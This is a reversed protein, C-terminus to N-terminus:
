AMEGYTTSSLTDYFTFSSTSITEADTYVVIDYNHNASGSRAYVYITYTGGEFGQFFNFIETNYPVSANYSCRGGISYSSETSYGETVSPWLALASAMRSFISSISPMM